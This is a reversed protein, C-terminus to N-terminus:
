LGLLQKKKADFEEQTIIGSDLLDKFRKLEDASSQQVPAAPHANRQRELLLNTIAAKIDDRNNIFNFAIKGSSSSVAIGKLLSTGVASISDLPLDVQKGFATKGYVRRNSVIIETQSYIFRFLVAIVVAAILGIVFFIEEATGSFATLLFAVLVGVVAGFVAGLKVPNDLTSKIITKEEM